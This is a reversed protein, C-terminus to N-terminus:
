QNQKHHMHRPSISHPRDAFKHPQLRRLCRTPTFSSSILRNTQHQRRLSTTFYSAVTNSPSQPIHATLPYTAPLSNVPTAAPALSEKCHEFFFQTFTCAQQQHHFPLFSRSTASTDSRAQPIHVTLLHTAARRDRPLVLAINSSTHLSSFFGYIPASKKAPVPALCFTM